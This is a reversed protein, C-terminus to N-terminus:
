FYLQWVGDCKVGHGQLTIRRDEVDLKYGPVIQHLVHGTHYFLQGVKYPVVLPKSDYIPDYKMPLSGNEWFEKSERPDNESHHRIFEDACGTVRNLTDQLESQFFEPRNKFDVNEAHEMFTRLTQDKESNSQFNFKAIMSQDMEMWDWLFLGGGTKPLELALTFSLPDELDYEKYTEWVPMHDRYQIDVHLSALPKGFREACYPDSLQGPKHGFVHFGPYAVLDCLQCPGVAETLKALLIDYAWGFHKKLVPNLKDKHLHYKKNSTVGEMYTVAGLTFFDLPEPARRIWLKHLKDVTQVVQNSQEETFVDIYGLQM